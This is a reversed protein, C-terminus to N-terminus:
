NGAGIRKLMALDMSFVDCNSIEDGVFPTAYSMARITRHDVKINAKIQKKLGQPCKYDCSQYALFIVYGPVMGNSQDFFNSLKFKCSCKESTSTDIVVVSNGNRASLTM